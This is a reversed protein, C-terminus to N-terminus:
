DGSPELGTDREPLATIERAVFEGGTFAFSARVEAGRPLNRIGVARGSANRARTRDDVWVEYVAGEEDVIELREGSRARLTGQMEVLAVADGALPDTSTRATRQEDSAPRRESSAARSQPSARRATAEQNAAPQAQTAGEQPDNAAARQPPQGEKPAAPPAAQQAASEVEPKRERDCAITTAVIAIWVWTWRM